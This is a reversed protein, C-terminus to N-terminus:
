NKAKALYDVLQDFTGKFGAQMSPAGEEFAAIEEPTANVPVSTLSIQTKGDQETLTMTTLIELPWKENWLNRVIEANEDAFSMVYVVREPPVIERYIFRGCFKQGQPTELGYHFMGGPRLDVKNFTNIFGKPSWWQKLAEPDTWAKWVLERPADITRSINFQFQPMVTM